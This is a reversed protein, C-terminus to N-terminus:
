GPTRRIADAFSAAANTSSARRPARSRSSRSSRTASRSSRARGGDHAGAGASFEGVLAHRHGMARPSTDQAEDILVHDIGRDLKYHVWGASVSDLLALTKDILDDYDLLGRRDKERATTRSSPTPSRSCRWTATARRRRRAPSRAAACVRDSETSCASRVPRITTASDDQDGAIKRPQSGETLFLSINDVQETGTLALADSATRGTRTPRAGHRSDRRDAAWGDAAIRGTSSEREVDEVRRTRRSASRRRFSRWRRRSAAPAEVWALVQDRQPDPM